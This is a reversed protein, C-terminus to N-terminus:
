RPEEAAVILEAHGLLYEVVQNLIDITQKVLEEKMMGFSASGGHVINNRLQYLMLALQKMFRHEDIAIEDEEAFEIDLDAYEFLVAGDPMFLRNDLSAIGRVKDLEFECSKGDKEFKIVTVGDPQIVDPQRKALYELVDRHEYVLKRVFERDSAVLGAINEIRKRDGNVGKIQLKIRGNAQPKVRVGRENKLDAVNYIANFVSWLVIYRILPAVHEGLTKYNVQYWSRIDRLRERQFERVREDVSM